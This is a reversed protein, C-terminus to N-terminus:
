LYTSSLTGAEIRNRGNQKAEYLYKDAQLYLKEKQNYHTPSTCSVGISVSIRPKGKDAYLLNLQQAAHLISLSLDIAHRLPTEVIVAYEDGGIRAALGAHTQCCHNLIGAISILLEDGISHGYVDNIQKFHDIDVLILSLETQHQICRAIAQQFYENFHRRNAIETLADQLCLLQAEELQLKVATIDEHALIFLTQQQYEFPTVSLQYWHREQANHCPYQLQLTSRKGKLVMEIMHIIEYATPHEAYHNNVPIQLYNTGPWCFGASIGRAIGANIWAQNVFLITGREDLVCILQQMANILEHYMTYGGRVRDVIDLAKHM